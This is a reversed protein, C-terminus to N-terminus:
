GDCPKISIMMLSIIPWGVRQMSQFRESGDALGDRSQVQSALSAGLAPAWPAAQRRPAAPGPPLSFLSVAVATGQCVAFTTLKPRSGLVETNVVAGSVRPTTGLCVSVTTFEPVGWGIHCNILSNSARLRRALRSATACYPM